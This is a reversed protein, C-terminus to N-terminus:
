FEVVSYLCTTSSLLLSLSSSLLPTSYPHLSPHFFFFFTFPFLSLSLYKPSSLLLPPFFFLSVSFSWIFPLPSLLLSCTSHLHHSFVPSQNNFQFFSTLSSFLPFSISHMIFILPTYSFSHHLFPLPSSFLPTFPFLFLLFLLHPFHVLFSLITHLSFCLFLCSPHLFPSSFFPFSPLCSSSRM